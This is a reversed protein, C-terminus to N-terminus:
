QWAISVDASGKSVYWFGAGAPIEISSAVATSVVTRGKVESTTTTTWGKGTVYKFMKGGGLQISDGNAAGTIKSKIDFAAANPNAVLNYAGATITSTAAASTAQGYLYLDYPESYDNKIFWFGNGRAIAAAAADGSSVTGGVGTVATPAWVSGSWTWGKFGGDKYVIISDGSTLGATMVLDTVKIAEDTTTACEVWPTCIMVKAANCTVKMAGFTNSTPVDTALVPLAALACFSVLSKIKM